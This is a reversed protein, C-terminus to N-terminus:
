GPPDGRGPRADAVHIDNGGHHQRAKHHIQLGHEPRWNWPSPASLRVVDVGNQYANITLVGSQVPIDTALQIPYIYGGDNGVTTSLSSQAGCPLRAGSSSGLCSGELLVDMVGGAATALPTNNGCVTIFGTIRKYGALNLNGPTLANYLTGIAAATAVTAGAPGNRTVYIYKGVSEPTFTLGICADPTGWDAGSQCPFASIEMGPIVAIKVKLKVQRAVFLDACNGTDLNSYGIVTFTQDGYMLGPGSLRLQMTGGCATVVRAANGVSVM